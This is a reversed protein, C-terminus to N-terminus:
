SWTLKFLIADEKKEFLIHTYALPYYGIHPMLLSKSVLKYKSVNEKLWAQINADLRLPRLAVDVVNEYMSYKIPVLTWFFKIGLSSLFSRM